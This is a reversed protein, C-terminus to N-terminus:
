QFRFLLAPSLVEGRAGVRCAPLKLWQVLARARIVSHVQDSGLCNNMKRAHHLSM